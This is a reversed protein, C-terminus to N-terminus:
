VIWNNDDIYEHLEDTDDAPAYGQEVIYKRLAVKLADEDRKEIAMSIFPFGFIEAEEKMYSLEEATWEMGDRRDLIADIIM